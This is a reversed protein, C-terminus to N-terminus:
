ILGRIVMHADHLVSKNGIGVCIMGASLAAEVGAVADEFVVCRATEVGLMAAAKLFVEPDPKTKEVTNGDAVADFDKSIGLRELILPTNRSASALAIRIKNSRLNM